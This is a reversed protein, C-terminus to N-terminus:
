HRLRLEGTLETYGNPTWEVKDHYSLMENSVREMHYEQHLKNSSQYVCDLRNESISGLLFDGLYLKGQRIELPKPNKNSIRMSECQFLSKKVFFVLPSQDIDLEMTCKETRGGVLLQGEGIWLGQLSASATQFTPLSLFLAYLWPNLKM